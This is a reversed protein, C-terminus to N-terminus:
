EKKIAKVPNARAARWTMWSVSLLTLLLMAGAALFFTSINLSIKYAFLALWKHTAYYAIPSAIIFAILISIVSDLNLMWLIKSEKAGHVKRIAIEKEKQRIIYLSMAFVGMLMILLTLITFAGMIKSTKKIGEYWLQIEDNIFAGSVTNEGSYEKYEKEIKQAVKYLDAGQEIKVSISWPSDDIQRFSIRVPGMPTYLMRFHFDSLIGAVQMKEPYNESGFIAMFTQPDPKLTNYAIQNVFYPNTTPITLMNVKINFVDFFASDVLFEQFSIAEGDREYSMNNGGDYPTGCCFSVNEVGEISFLKAKFGEVQADDLVNRM